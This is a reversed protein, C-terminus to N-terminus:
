EYYIISYDYLVNYNKVLKTNGIELKHITNKKMKVKMSKKPNVQPMHKMLDILINMMM